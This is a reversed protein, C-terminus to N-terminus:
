RTEVASKMIPVLQFVYLEVRETEGFLPSSFTVVPCVSREIYHNEADYLLHQGCSCIPRNM